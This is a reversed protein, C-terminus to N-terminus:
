IYIRIKNCYDPEIKCFVGKVYDNAIKDKIVLIKNKLTEEVRDALFWM